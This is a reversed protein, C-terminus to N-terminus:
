AFCRGFNKKNQCFGFEAKQDTKLAMSIFEAKSYSFTRKNAM